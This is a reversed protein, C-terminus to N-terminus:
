SEVNNKKQVFRAELYELLNYCIKVKMPEEIMENVDAGHLLAAEANQNSFIYSGTLFAIKVNCCILSVM